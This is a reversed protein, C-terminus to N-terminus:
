AYPESTLQHIRRAVRNVVGPEGLMGRIKDYSNLMSKRYNNDKTLRELESRIEKDLNFQLLERVVEKDMIINVLSFYKPKIFHRGLAYMLSGTKYCVVQPVNFIATELTATGSTVAAAHAISLIEYTRNYIVKVPQTGIIGDYLDRGLSEVGAVVFQYQPFGPVSGLMEPLLRTIEHKRSGALLAVVPREDLDYQRRFADPDFGSRHFEYAMDILPNGYYDIEFDHEKYFEVEFPFIGIMRDVYKKIKRIRSSQWVWVKPSIYYLVRYGAQKAFRAIRLNFGAYDILVLVDPDFDVIAKKCANLNHRIRNLNAIVDFLGMFAMERYHVLVDAGAAQMREGGYAKFEAGPDMQILSGIVKSGHLDGSAEGAIFFYKM